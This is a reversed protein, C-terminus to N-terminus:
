NVWFSEIFTKSEEFHLNILRVNLHLIWENEVNDSTVTKCIEERKHELKDHKLTYTLIGEFLFTLEDQFCSIHFRSGM